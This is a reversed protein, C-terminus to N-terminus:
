FPYRKSLYVAEKVLDRGSCCIRTGENMRAEIFFLPLFFGVAANAERTCTSEARALKLEVYFYRDPRQLDAEILYERM